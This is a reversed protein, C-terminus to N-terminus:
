GFSLGWSTKKKTLNTEQFALVSTQFGAVGLQFRMTPNMLCCLKVNFPDDAKINLGLPRRRAPSLRSQRQSAKVNPITRSRTSMLGISLAAESHPYWSFEKGRKRKRLFTYKPEAFIQHKQIQASNKSPWNRRKGYYWDDQCLETKSPQMKLVNEQCLRKYDQASTALQTIQINRFASSKPTM